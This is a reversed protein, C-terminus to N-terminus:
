GPVRFVTAALLLVAAIVVMLIGPVILWLQPVAEGSGFGMVTNFGLLILFAGICALVVSLFLGAKGRM